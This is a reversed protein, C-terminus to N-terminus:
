VNNGGIIAISTININAKDCEELKVKYMGGVYSIYLENNISIVKGGLVNNYTRPIGFPDTLDMKITFIIENGEKIERNNIDFM